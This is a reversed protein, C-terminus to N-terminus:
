QALSSIREHAAAVSDAVEILGHEDEIAAFWGFRGEQERIVLTGRQNANRIAVDTISIFRM